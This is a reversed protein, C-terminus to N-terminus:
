NIENDRRRTEEERGRETRKDQTHRHRQAYIIGKHAHIGTRVPTTTHVTRTSTCYLYYTVKLVQVTRM